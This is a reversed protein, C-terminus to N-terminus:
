TKVTEGTDAGALLEYLRGMERTTRLRHAIEPKRLRRSVCALAALHDTTSGAPSLLLFVLDVPQEDVAAFEIPRDLRAFLGFFRSLGDIRAHPIAIGDGVGTSGLQERQYLAGFVRQDDVGVSPAARHALERLLQVKDGTHLNGIVRDPEILDAIRM